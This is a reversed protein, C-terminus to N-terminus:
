VGVPINLTDKEPMEDEEEEKLMEYLCDVDFNYAIIQKIVQSWGQSMREVFSEDHYIRDSMFYNMGQLIGHQVEHIFSVFCIDHAMDSAVDIIGETFHIQAVRNGELETGFRVIYTVGFIDIEEPIRIYL